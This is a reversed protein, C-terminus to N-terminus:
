ARRALDLKETLSVSLELERPRIGRGRYREPPLPTPTSAVPSAHGRPALAATRTPTAPRREPLPSKKGSRTNLPPPSLAAARARAGAAGRSHLHPAPATPLQYSPPLKIPRAAASICETHTHSHIGTRQQANASTPLSRLQGILRM